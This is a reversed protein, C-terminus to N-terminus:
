CKQIKEEKKRPIKERKEGWKRKRNLSVHFPPYQTCMGGGVGGGQNHRQNAIHFRDHKGKFGPGICHKIKEQLSFYSRQLLIWNRIWGLAPDPGILEVKIQARTHCTIETRSPFYTIQNRLYMQKFSSLHFITSDNQLFSLMKSSCFCSRLIAKYTQGM